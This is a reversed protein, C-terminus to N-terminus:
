TSLRLWTSIYWICTEICYGYKGEYFIAISPVNNFRDISIFTLLIGHCPPNSCTASTLDVMSKYVYVFRCTTTQEQIPSKLKSMHGNVISNLITREIRTYLIHGDSTYLKTFKKTWPSTFSNWSSWPKQLYDPNSIITWLNHKCSIHM